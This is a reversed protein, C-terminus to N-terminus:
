VRDGKKCNCSRCMTQLNEIENSGGKALPIIHDITLNEHTGCTVCRYASREHVIRRTEKGIDKRLDKRKGKPRENWYQFHGSDHLANMVENLIHGCNGDGWHAIYPAVSVIDQVAAKFKAVAKAEEMLEWTMAEISM